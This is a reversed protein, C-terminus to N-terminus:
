NKESVCHFTLIVQHFFILSWDRKSNTNSVPEPDWKTLLDASCGLNIRFIRGNVLKLSFDSEIFDM